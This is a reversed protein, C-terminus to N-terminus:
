PQAWGIAAEFDAESMPVGVKCIHLFADRAEDATAHQMDTVVTRADSFTNQAKDFWTLGKNIAEEGLPKWIGDWRERILPNAQRSDVLARMPLRMGEDAQGADVFEFSETLLNAVLVPGSAWVSREHETLDQPLASAPDHVLWAMSALRNQGDLLLSAPADGTELTIPGLRPRGVKALDAKGMPTWVLFSGTPYGRLISELLSLVDARTWVYPRQFAAPALEGRVAQRVLEKLFVSHQQIRM